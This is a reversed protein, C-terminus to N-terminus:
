LCFLPVKLVSSCVWHAVLWIPCFISRQSPLSQSYPVPCFAQSGPAISIFTFPIFFFAMVHLFPSISIRLFIFLQVLFFYWTYQESHHSGRKCINYELSSLICIHFTHCFPTFTNILSFIRMAKLLGFKM